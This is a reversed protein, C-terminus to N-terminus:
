NLITFSFCAPNTSPASTVAINSSTGATRASVFPATFTTNCTVGLRAGLSDDFTVLIQSNATVATTDVTVSNSSAAIAVSGSIRSGCTAPNSSSACVSTSNIQTTQGNSILTINSGLLSNTASGNFSNNAIIGNDGGQDTSDARAVVNYTVCNLFQNGIITFGDAQQVDICSSSVSGGNGHFYAGHISAGHVKATSVGQQGLRIHAGTNNEFYGGAVELGDEAQGNNAQGAAIGVAWGSISCGFCASGATDVEIGAGTPTTASNNIRSGKFTWNNAGYGLYIGNAGNATASVGGGEFVNSYDNVNTGVTRIAYGTCNRIEVDDFQSNTLGDVLVGDINSLSNCELYLNSLRIRSATHTNDGFQFISGSLGSGASLEVRGLGLFTLGSTASDVIQTKIQYCGPPFYIVWGAANNTAMAASADSIAQNIAPGADAACKYNASYPASQINFWNTQASVSSVTLALFLLAFVFRYKM